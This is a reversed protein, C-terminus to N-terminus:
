PYRAEVFAVLGASMARAADDHALHEAQELEPELVGQLCIRSFALCLAAVTDLQPKWGGAIRRLADSLAARSAIALVGAGDRYWAAGFLLVPIGKCM